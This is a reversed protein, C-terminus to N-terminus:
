HLRNMIAVLKAAIPPESMSHGADGIIHLDSHPVATHLDWASRAPCVVDYRGQVIDIPIDSLRDVHDLIFNDPMFIRNTFYHCEIRAFAVAFQLDDAKLEASAKPILYSTAMEWRTWERAAAHRVAEDESTLRAHYARMLDGREAEPIHNRYGEFADPFIHSAGEQYFWAFESDRCLFIGRLVLHQVREPHHQAYILSLSSGWSGGFVVWADIGLHERLQEIDSVSAMTTNDELEAWPTSRGCGRQDFQIIRWHNPDFYRRYDPQSGGGPGGHIVLVPAGEPNGAAEWAVSHLDSVELMGQQHPEIRPYLVDDLDAMGRCGTPLTITNQVVLIIRHLGFGRAHRVHSGRHVHEAVPGLFATVFPHLPAVSSGHAFHKGESQGTSRFKPSAEPGDVHPAAVTPDDTLESRHRKARMCFAHVSGRPHDLLGLADVWLTVVVVGHEGIPGGLPPKIQENGHLHEVVQAIRSGHEGGKALRPELGTAPGHNAHVVICFVLVAEIPRLLHANM